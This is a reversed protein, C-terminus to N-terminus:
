ATEMRAASDPIFLWVRTTGKACTVGTTGGHARAVESVIALGLGAGNQHARAGETRYFARFIAHREGRPVGKGHDSFSIVTGAKRRRVNVCLRDGRPGYKSANDLLNLFARMLGGPDASTVVSAHTSAITVTQDRAVLTPKIMEVTDDLLGLVDVLPREAVAHSASAGLIEGMFLVNRRLMEFIHSARQDSEDRLELLADVGQVVTALPTRIDHAAKLLSERGHSLSIREGVYTGTTMAREGGCGGIDRSRAVVRHM